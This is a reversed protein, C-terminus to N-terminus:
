AISIDKYEYVTGIARFKSKEGAKLMKRVKDFLLVQKKTFLIEGCKLCVEVSLPLLVTENGERVTETVKKM